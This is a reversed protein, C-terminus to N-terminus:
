KLVSLLSARLQESVGPIIQAIKNDKGVVFLTPYGSVKFLKRLADEKDVVWELDSSHTSPLESTVNIFRYNSIQSAMANLVLLQEKCHPCDPSIFNLVIESDSNAVPRGSITEANFVPIADGLHLSSSTVERSPRFSYAMFTLNLCSLLAVVAIPALLMTYLRERFSSAHMGRKVPPVVIWITWMLINCAHAILCTMCWSPLKMYTLTLALLLAWILGGRAIQRHPFTPFLLAVAVLLAFYGAGILPLYPDSTVCTKCGLLGFLNPTEPLQLFLATLALIGLIPVWYRLKMM